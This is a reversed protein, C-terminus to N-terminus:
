DTIIKDALEEKKEKVFNESDVTPIKEYFVIYGM